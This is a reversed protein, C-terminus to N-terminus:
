GTAANGEATKRSKSMGGPRVVLGAAPLSAELGAAAHDGLAVAGDDRVTRPLSTVDDRISALDQQTKVNRYGGLGLLFRTSRATRDGTEKSPISVYTQVLGCIIV